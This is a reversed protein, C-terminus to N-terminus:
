KSLGATIGWTMNYFKESDLYYNVSGAKTRENISIDIKINMDQLDYFLVFDIVEGTRKWNYPYVLAGGGYFSDYAKLLGESGDTKEEAYVCLLWDAKSSTKM